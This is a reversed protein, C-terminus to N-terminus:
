SSWRAPTPAAKEPALLELRGLQTAGIKQSQAPKLDWLKRAFEIIDEEHASYGDAREGDL